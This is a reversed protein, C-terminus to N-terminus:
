SIKLINNKESKPNLIIEHFCELGKKQNDWLLKNKAGEFNFWNYDQHEDSLTIKTENVLMGFVPILNMINRKPDYYYNVTDISWLKQPSLGTEEKTERYAADVPKEESDIKGTVSQWISPYRKNESRKLILYEPSGNNIFAIHCDICRVMIKNMMAEIIDILLIMQGFM